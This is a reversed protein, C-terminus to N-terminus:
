WSVHKETNTNTNTARTMHKETNGICFLATYAKRDIIYSDNMVILAKKIINYVSM